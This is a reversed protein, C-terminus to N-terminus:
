SGLDEDDTDSSCDTCGDEKPAVIMSKLTLDSHTMEVSIFSKKSFLQDEQSVRIIVFRKEKMFTMIPEKSRLESIKVWGLSKMESNIFEMSELPPKDLFYVLHGTWNAGDGMIMSKSLDVKATKPVPVDTIGGLAPKSTKSPFFSCASLSLILVSISLFQARRTLM